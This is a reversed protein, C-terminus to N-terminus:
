GHTKRLKPTASRALIRRLRPVWQRGSIEHEWITVAHLGQARLGRVIRQDRRRNGDLKEQWFRHRSRPTRRKCKSCAHWFCGHVFVAVRRSPFFFDPQGKIRKECRVWGVIREQRLAARVALETSKADRRRISAMHDSRDSRSLLDRM